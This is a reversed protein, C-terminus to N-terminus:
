SLRLTRSCSSAVRSCAKCRRYASARLLFIDRASRAMFILASYTNRLRYRVLLLEVEAAAAGSYGRAGVAVGGGLM